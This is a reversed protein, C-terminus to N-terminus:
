DGGTVVVQSRGAHAYEFTVTTAKTSSAVIQGGVAVKYPGALLSSPSTVSTEGISGAPGAATFRLEKLDWDFSMDYVNSTSEVKLNEQIGGVNLAFEYTVPQLPELVARYLLREQQGPHPNREQEIPISAYLVRGTADIELVRDHFFISGDSRLPLGLNAAYWHDGGDKTKYVGRATAAYLVLPNTPDLALDFVRSAPATFEEGRPEFAFDHVIGTPLGTSSPRWTQAGDTSKYPQTDTAAYLTDPDVPDMQLDNTNLDGLGNNVASWSAGGDTTKYIGIATESEHKSTMAYAITPDTPHVVIANISTKTEIPFGEDMETWTAGGDSSKFVHAGTLSFNHSTDHVSGVYVINPDSPAVALGHVHFGPIPDERYLGLARSRQSVGALLADGLFSWNHGRRHDRTKREGSSGLGSVNLGTVM